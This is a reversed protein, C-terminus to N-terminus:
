TKRFLDIILGPIRKGLLRHAIRSVFIRWKPVELWTKSYWHISRTNTTINLKGTLDDLPNFYEKPYIKIGDINAIGEPFISGCRNLIDTTHTVITTQDYSGDEQLFHRGQYFELIKAYLCLGSIAGLGLGPNVEGRILKRKDGSPDIEFGMFPGEAIIDDIPRIVEVDTDFYLGGHEYLIKFRAYDSVFAYKGAAYAEATYPISDVDFNKENWQIIEYDPVFKRWSAICRLASEPLPKGGFWCYHIKRPIQMEETTTRM